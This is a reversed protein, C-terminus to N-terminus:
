RAFIKELEAAAKIDNEPLPHSYRDLTISVRSHGLRHAVTQIDVGNGILLTASTHRLDHLRINPLKDDETASEEKIQDDIIKNYRAILKKFKQGPTDLHMMSGNDTQIFVFNEDYETGRKGQWYSGLQLCLEQQQRKWEKLLNMSESPMVITRISKKTKPEKIYVTHSKDAYAAARRISVTAAKFDIDQWQLAILEGRRFGGYIALNFYVRFQYQTAYSASYETVHYGKGTDDIRDHAKTTSIYPAKLFDLFALAQDRTFFHLNTDANMKPLEVRACPNDQIIQMRYAYRFVSNLATHAHRITAPAYGTARMTEMIAQIHLPRIHAIKLTRLTPYGQRKVYDEYKEQQSLTLHKQSWQPLYYEEHFREFTIKEGSLYNGEKVTKEFDRAAAAVEKEIKTPTKAKPTYTMTERIQKGDMGRGLSVTFQYTNGRKKITAM